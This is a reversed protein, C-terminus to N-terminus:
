GWCAVIDTATSTDYIKTVWGFFYSADELTFEIGTGGDVLDVVVTGGTKAFLFCPETFDVNGGSLDVVAAKTIFLGPAHVRTAAKAGINQTFTFNSNSNLNENTM